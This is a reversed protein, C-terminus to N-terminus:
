DVSPTGFSDYCGGSGSEVVVSGACSNGVGAADGLGIGPLPPTTPCYQAEWYSPLGQVFMVNLDSILNSTIVCCVDNSPNSASTFFPPSHFEVAASQIPVLMALRRRQHRVSCLVSLFVFLCFVGLSIGGFIYFTNPPGDM